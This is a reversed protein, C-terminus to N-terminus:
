CENRADKRFLVCVSCSVGAGAVGADTATEVPANTCISDNFM